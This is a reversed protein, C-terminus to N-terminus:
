NWGQYLYNASQAATPYAMACFDATSQHNNSLLFQNAVPSAFGSPHHNHHNSENLFQQQQHSEVSPQQSHSASNHHQNLDLLQESVFVDSNSENLIAVSSNPQQGKAVNLLSGSPSSLSSPSSANSSTVAKTENLANQHLSSIYRNSWATISNISSSGGNATQDLYSGYGNNMFSSGNTLGNTLGNTATAHHPNMPNFNALYGNSYLNFSGNAAGPSGQLSNFFGNNNAPSTGIEMEGNHELHHGNHENSHSANHGNLHNMINTDCTLEGTAFNSQQNAFASNTTQYEISIQQEQSASQNQGVLLENSGYSHGGSHLLLQDAASNLSNLSNSLLSTQHGGLVNSLLPNSSQIQKLRNPLLSGGNESQPTTPPTLASNLAIAASNVTNLNAVSSFIKRSNPFSLGTAPEFEDDQQKRKLSPKM